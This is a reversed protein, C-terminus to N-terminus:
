QLDTITRRRKAAASLTAIRHQVHHENPGGFRIRIGVKRHINFDTITVGTAAEIIAVLWTDAGPQVGIFVCTHALPQHTNIEGIALIATRSRDTHLKGQDIPVLLRATALERTLLTVDAHSEHAIRAVLARQASVLQEIQRCLTAEADANM